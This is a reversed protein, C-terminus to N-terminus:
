GNAKDLVCLRATQLRDILVDLTSRGELIVRAGVTRGYSDVCSLIIELGMDGRLFSVYVSEAMISSARPTMRPQSLAVYRM